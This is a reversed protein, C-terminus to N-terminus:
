RIIVATAAGGAVCISELRVEQDKGEEFLPVIEVVHPVNPDLGRAVEIV